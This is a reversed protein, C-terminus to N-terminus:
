LAVFYWLETIRNLFICARAGSLSIEAHWKELAEGLM